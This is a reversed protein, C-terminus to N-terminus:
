QAGMATLGNENLMKEVAQASARKEEKTLSTFGKGTIREFAAAVQEPTASKAGGPPTATASPAASSQPTGKVREMAKILGQRIVEKQISGYPAGKADKAYEDTLTNLIFREQQEPSGTNFPTTRALWGPTLDPNNAKAWEFAAKISDETNKQINEAKREETAEGAPAPGKAVEDRPGKLPEWTKKFEDVLVLTGDRLKHVSVQPTPTKQFTKFPVQETLPLPTADPFQGTGPLTTESVTLPALERTHPNFTWANGQEDTVRQLPQGAEERLRTETENLSGKVFDRLALPEMADQSQRIMAARKRAKPDASNELLGLGARAEDRLAKNEQDVKWKRIRDAEAERAKREGETEVARAKRESTQQEASLQHQLRIDEQGRQHGLTEAAAKGEAAVRAAEIRAEKELRKEEADMGAAARQRALAMMQAAFADTFDLDYKPRKVPSWGQTEYATGPM